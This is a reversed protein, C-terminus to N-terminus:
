RKRWFRPWRLRRKKDNTTRGGAKKERPEREETDAERAIEEPLEQFERFLGGHPPQPTIM